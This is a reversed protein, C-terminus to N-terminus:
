TVEDFFTFHASAPVLCVRLNMSVIATFIDSTEGTKMLKAYKPLTYFGLANRSCHSLLGKLFHMCLGVSVWLSM